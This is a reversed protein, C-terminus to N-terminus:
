YCGGPTAALSRWASHRGARECSKRASVDFTAALVARFERVPATDHNEIPVARLVVQADERTMATRQSRDLGDVIETAQKVGTNIGGNAVTCLAQYLRIAPVIQYDGNTSALVSEAADDSAAVDGSFAFVLSEAFHLKLRSEEENNRTIWYGSMIDTASPTRMLLDHCDSLAKRADNHRGMASLAKAKSILIFALGGSSPKGQGIIGQATETLRLVTDPSRQGFLGHGAETARVGLRLELDGSADAADWPQHTRV